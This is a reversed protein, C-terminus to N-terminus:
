GRRWYWYRKDFAYTKTGSGLEVLVGTEVLRRLGRYLNQVHDISYRTAIENLDLIAAPRKAPGYVQALGELSLRPKAKTWIALAMSAFGEYSIEFYGDELNPRGM